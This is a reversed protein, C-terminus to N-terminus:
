TQTVTAFVVLVETGHPASQGPKPTQRLAAGHAASGPKVPQTAATLRLGVSRLVRRAPGQTLGTVDPVTIQVEGKTADSEPTMEVSFGSGDPKDGGLFIRGDEALSGKLDLRIAGIRFPNDKAKLEASAAGLKSGINTVVSDIQAPEGRAAIKIEEVKAEAATARDLAIKLDADKLSLAHTSETLLREQTALRATNELNIKHLSELEAKVKPDLDLTATAGNNLVGTDLVIGGGPPRNITDLIVTGPPITDFRTFINGLALEKRRPIGAVTYIDEGKADRAPYSGDDLVDIEGFDVIMDANNQLTFMVASALVRDDQGGESLRLAPSVKGLGRITRTDTQATFFGEADSEGDLFAAWAGNSLNSALVMLSRGGLPKGDSGFLRARFILNAM